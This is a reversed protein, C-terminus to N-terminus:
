GDLLVAPCRDPQPEAKCWVHLPLPGRLDRGRDVAPVVDAGLRVHRRAPRDEHRLLLELRFARSKGQVAGRDFDFIDPQRVLFRQRNLVWSDGAVGPRLNPVAIRAPIDAAARLWWGYPRGGSILRTGILTSAFAFHYLLDIM